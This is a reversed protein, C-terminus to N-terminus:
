SKIKNNTKISLRPKTVPRSPDNLIKVHIEDTREGERELKGTLAYTFAKSLLYFMNENDAGVMGLFRGVNDILEEGTKLNLEENFILNLSTEDERLVGFLFNDYEDDAKMQGLKTMIIEKEDKM